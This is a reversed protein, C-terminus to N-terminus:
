RLAECNASRRCQRECEDSETMAGLVGLAAGLKSTASSGMMASSYRQVCSSQCESVQSVCSNYQQAKLVEQQLRAAEQQGKIQAAQAQTAATQAAVAERRATLQAEEALYARIVSAPVGTAPPSAAAVLVPAASGANAPSSAGPSPASAVPRWKALVAAIDRRGRALAFQELPQGEPSKSGPSAGSELLAVVSLTSGSSVAAYLPSKRDYTGLNPDAGRKLLERVLDDHGMASAFMLATWGEADRANVKAGKKLALGAAVTNGREAAAWLDEQPGALLQTPLVGVFVLVLVWFQRRWQHIPM